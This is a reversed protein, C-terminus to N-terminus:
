VNLFEASGKQNKAVIKRTVSRDTVNMQLMRLCMNSIHLCMKQM